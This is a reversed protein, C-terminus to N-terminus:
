PNSQPFATVATHAWVCAEWLVAAEAPVEARAALGEEGELEVLLSQSEASSLLICPVSFIYAKFLIGWCRVNTLTQLTLFSFGGLPSNFM